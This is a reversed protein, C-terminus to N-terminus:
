AFLGDSSFLGFSPSHFPPAPRRHPPGAPGPLNWLWLGLLLSCGIGSSSQQGPLLAVILHVVKGLGIQPPVVGIFELLESGRAVWSEMLSSFSLTGGTM